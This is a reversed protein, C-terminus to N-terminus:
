SLVSAGACWVSHAAIVAQMLCCVRLGPACQSAPPHLAPVVLARLHLVRLVAHCLTLACQSTTEQIRAIGIRKFRSGVFSFIPASRGNLHGTCGYLPKSNITGSKIQVNYLIKHDSEREPWKVWNRVYARRSYCNRAM